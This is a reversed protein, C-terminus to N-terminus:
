FGGSNFGGEGTRSDALFTFPQVSTHNNTAIEGGVNAPPTAAAVRQKAERLEKLDARAQQWAEFYLSSKPDKLHEPRRLMARHMVIPLALQKITDPCTTADMDEIAYGAGILLRAVEASGMRIAFALADADAIGTTSGDAAQVSFVEAVREASFSEELDDQNVLSLPM